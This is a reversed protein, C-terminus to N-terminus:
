KRLSAHASSLEKGETTALFLPKLGKLYTGNVLIEAYGVPLQVAGIANEINRNSADNFDIVGKSINKLEVGKSINKLETRYKRELFLRRVDTALNEDHTFDAINYPEAEGKELLEIAKKVINEKEM